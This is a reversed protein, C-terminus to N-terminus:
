QSISDYYRIVPIFSDPIKESVYLKNKKIFNKILTKDNALIKFLDSEGSIPYFSNGKVFYLHSIQYFKDYKGEVALKEIKKSYELYLATKDKYLVNFYRKMGKLSDEQMRVFHYIKNQFSISFSDVLEKNVQLVGGTDSPILIEDKYIDYKLFINSFYKGSISLSGELFEKSFLFQDGQVTYFLNRWIRGNYLVQNEKLTDQRSVKESIKTPFGLVIGFHDSV